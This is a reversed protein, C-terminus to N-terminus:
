RPALIAHVYMHKLLDEWERDEAGIVLRNKLDFNELPHYHAPNAQDHFPLRLPNVLSVVATINHDKLYRESEVSAMNGIFLGPEIEDMSPMSGDISTYARLPALTPAQPPTRPARTVPTKTKLPTIVKDPIITTEGITVKRKKGPSPPSEPEQDKPERGQAAQDQGAQDQATQDQAWMHAKRVLYYTGSIGVLTVITGGIADTVPTAGPDALTSNATGM